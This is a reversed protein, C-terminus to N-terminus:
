RSNKVDRGAQIQKSDNGANQRQTLRKSFVKWTIVSGGAGGILLGVLLTGIGDFFWDM